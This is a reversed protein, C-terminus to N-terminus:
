KAEHPLIDRLWELDISGHDRVIWELFDEDYLGEVVRLLESDHIAFDSAGDSVAPFKSALNMFIQSSLSDRVNQTLLVCVVSDVVSGKWPSLQRDGQILHMAFIFKDLSGYKAKDVKKPLPPHKKPPNSKEKSAILADNQNRLVLQHNKPPDLKDKSAIIADNQNWLVLRHKKPPGLKEKSAILTDNQKRLVLQNSVDNVHLGEMVQSSFDVLAKKYLDYDQSASVDDEEDDEEEDDSSGVFSVFSPSGVDPDRYNLIDINSTRELLVMEVGNIHDEFDTVSNQISENWCVVDDEDQSLKQQDISKTEEFTSHWWRKRTSRKSRKKRAVWHLNLNLTSKEVVPHKVAKSLARSRTMRSSAIQGLNMPENMSARKQKQPTPIVSVIRVLKDFATARPRSMRAKKFLSPFIPGLKRSNKLCENPRLTRTYVRLSNFISVSGQLEMEVEPQSSGIEDCVKLIQNVARNEIDFNLKRGSPEVTTITLSNKEMLRPRKPTRIPPKLTSPNLTKKKPKTSDYVKPIHKEIKPGKGQNRRQPTENQAKNSAKTSDLGFECHLIHNHFPAGNESVLSAEVEITEQPAREDSKVAMIDEPEEKLGLLETSSCIKSPVWDFKGVIEMCVEDFSFSLPLRSDFQLDRFFNMNSQIYAIVM